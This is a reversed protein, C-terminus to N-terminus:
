MAHVTLRSALNPCKKHFHKIACTSRNSLWWTKPLIHVIREISDAPLSQATTTGRRSSFNHRFTVPLYFKYYPLVRSLGLRSYMLWGASCNAVCRQLFKQLWGNSATFDTMDEKRVLELATLQVHERSVRLNQSRLSVIWDALQTDVEPYKVRFPRCWMFNM